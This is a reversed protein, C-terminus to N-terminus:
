ETKYMGEPAEIALGKDILGRYDFHHANLWDLQEIGYVKNFFFVTHICQRDNQLWVYRVRDTEIESKILEGDFMVGFMDKAEEETMSSMPRLYLKINEVNFGEQRTEVCQFDGDWCTATGITEVGKSDADPFYHFKVGYSLRECLDKLLLKKYEPKMHNIIIGNLQGFNM